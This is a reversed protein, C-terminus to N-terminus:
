KIVFSVLIPNSEEEITPMNNAELFHNIDELDNEEISLLTFLRDSAVSVIQFVLDQYLFGKKVKKDGLFAVKDRKKDYVVPLSQEPFTELLGQQLFLVIYQQTQYVRNVRYYHDWNDQKDFIFLDKNFGYRGFDVTFLPLLQNEKNIQWITDGLEPKYYIGYEDRTNIVFYPIETQVRNPQSWLEEGNCNFVQVLLENNSLNPCVYTGNQYCLVQNDPSTPISRIFNNEYDTVVIKKIGAVYVEKKITDIDFDLLAILEEPGPGVSGITRLFHGEQDFVLIKNAEGITSVFILDEDFRLRWLTAFLSSDQTELSVIRDIELHDAGLYLPKAILGEVDLHPLTSKSKGCSALSLLILVFSLWLTNKM